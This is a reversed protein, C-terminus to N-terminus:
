KQTVPVEIQYDALTKLMTDRPNVIEGTVLSKLISPSFGSVLATNPTDLKAPDGAYGAINWYIISPKNYGAAEWRAMCKEVVTRDTGECAVCGRNGGCHTNFQMDSLIVLHTIMQDAPMNVAVAQDLIYDLTGQINTTGVWRNGSHVQSSFSKGRWDKFQTTSAFELFRRYFPNQSGLRDSLYLGLSMAVDGNSVSSNKGSIAPSGMSGSSDVVAMMRRGNPGVYDPLAAFQADALQTDTRAKVLCDHPWLTAANVKAGNKGTALDAKYQSFRVPDHKEFTASYLKMCQSPVHSYNIASFNNSCILRETIGERGKKLKLRLGKENTKFIKQLPWMDCKAWKCALHDDRSIADAWFSAALKQLDTEWLQTLDNWRGWEPIHHMNVAIWDAGCGDGNDPQLALWRLCDRAADRNGAGGRPNRLWFLLQLARTKAEVGATLWCPQFLSLATTESNPGYFSKGKGKGNSKRKILSGAKAFFELQHDGTHIYTPDGNHTTTM